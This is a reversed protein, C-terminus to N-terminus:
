PRNHFRALNRLDENNRANTKSLIRKKLGRITAPDVGFKEGIQASNWDQILYPLIEKERPALGDFVGNGGESRAHNRPRQNQVFEIMERVTGSASENKSVYRIGFEQRLSDRYVSAPESSYVLIRLEDHMKCIDGLIALVSGDGL